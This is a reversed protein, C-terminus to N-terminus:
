RVLSLAAAASNDPAPTAPDSVIELGEPADYGPNNVAKSIPFAEMREEMPFASDMLLKRAEAGDRMEPDLWSDYSRDDLLLAMRTHFRSFWKDSDGVVITCSWLDEGGDDAKWRSWLGAAAFTNRERDRNRILHPVKAGKAGTWEIMGDVVVLGRNRKVPERYLPSSTLGEVRANFTSYRSDFERIKDRSQMHSPVLNWHMARLVREGSDPDTYVVPIEQRPNLNFRPKWDSPIFRKSFGYVVSSVGDPNTVTARGCM